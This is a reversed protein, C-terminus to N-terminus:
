SVGSCILRSGNHSGHRYSGNIWSYALPRPSGCIHFRWISLDTPSRRATKYRGGKHVSKHSFADSSEVTSSLILSVSATSVHVFQRWAMGAGGADVLSAVRTM